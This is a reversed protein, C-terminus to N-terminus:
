NRSELTLNMGPLLKIKRLVKLEDALRSDIVINFAIVGGVIIMVTISLLIITKIWKFNM